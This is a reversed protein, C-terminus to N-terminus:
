IERGIVVAMAKSTKCNRLRQVRIFLCNGVLVTPSFSEYNAFAENLALRKFEQQCRSFTKATLGSFQILKTGRRQEKDFCWPDCCPVTM